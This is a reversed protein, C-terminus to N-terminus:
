GSSTGKLSEKGTCGPLKKWFQRGCRVAIGATEAAKVPSTTPNGPSDGYSLHQYGAERLLKAVAGFVAPHTTIARQPAARCLLNPKLLVKMGPQLDNAVGLAEFHAAIASDLLDDRYAEANQVSVIAM